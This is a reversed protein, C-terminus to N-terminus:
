EMKHWTDIPRGNPWQGSWNHTSLPRSRRCDLFRESLGSPIPIVLGTTILGNPVEYILERKEQRDGKGKKLARIQEQGM